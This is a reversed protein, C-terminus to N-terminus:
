SVRSHAPFGPKGRIRKRREPSGSRRTQPPFRWFDGAKEAFIGTKCLSHASILKIVVAASLPLRNVGGSPSRITRIPTTDAGAELFERLAVADEDIGKRADLEEVPARFAQLDLVLELSGVGARTHLKAVVDGLGAMGM